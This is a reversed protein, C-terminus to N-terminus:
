NAGMEKLAAEADEMDVDGTTYAEFERAVSIIDVTTVTEDGKLFNVANTLANQRNISRKPALAAMPFSDPIFEKKAPVLSSSTSTGSSAPLPASGKNKFSKIYNRGGDDFEVNDGSEPEPGNWWEQKQSYWKGEVCINVKDYNNHKSTVQGTVLM